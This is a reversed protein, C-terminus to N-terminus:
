PSARWEWAEHRWHQHHAHHSTSPHQYLGHHQHPPQKGQAHLFYYAPQHQATTITTQSHSSSAVSKSTANGGSNRASMRELQKHQQVMVSIKNFSCIPCPAEVADGKFERLLVHKTTFLPLPLAALRKEFEPVIEEDFVRKPFVHGCTFVKVHTELPDSKGLAQASHPEITVAPLALDNKLVNEKVLDLLKLMASRRELSPPARPEPVSGSTGGSLKTEEEGSDLFTACVHFLFQGSFPLRHCMRVWERDRDDFGSSRAVAAFVTSTTSSSSSPTAAAARLSGGGGSGGGLIGDVVESFFIKALLSAVFPYVKPDILFVELETKALGYEFWKVLLRALIAAKMEETITRESRRQVVLSNLLQFLEERMADQFESEDSVGSALSGTTSEVSADSSQRRRRLASFSVPPSSSLASTPSTPTSLVPRLAKHSQLRAEVAEVLEGHAEYVCAAATWNEYDVCRAVVIPPRYQQALEKMLQELAAQSYKGDDVGDFSVSRAHEGDGSSRRRGNSDRASARNLFLLVTLFLEVREEPLVRMMESAAVDASGVSQADGLKSEGAESETLVNRPDVCQAIQQCRERSISPLNRAVWDRQQLISPPYTLLVDVQTDIPFARLILRSEPRTLEPAFGASVLSRLAKLSVFPALGASIIKQLVLRVQKRCKGVLVAKDVQQHALCQDVIEETDYDSSTELFHLLWAEKEALRAQTDAGRPRLKLQVSVKDDDSSDLPSTVNARLQERLVLDLLKLAVQKREYADVYLTPAAFRPGPTAHQHQQDKATLIEQAFDIACQAGGISTLQDIAMSPLARSVQYLDRIWQVMRDDAVTKSTHVNECLTEAVVQCLSAMDIGLAYGISLANRLTISQACLTKFLALRSWQPRCEYVHHQTQLLYIVQAEGLRDSSGSFRRSAALASGSGGSKAAQGSGGALQLTRATSQVVREIKENGHLSLYHVIHANAVQDDDDPGSHSPLSIWTSVNQKSKATRGQLLLLDTTCYAIEVDEVMDEDDSTGDDSKGTKMEEPAGDPSNASPALSPVVYENRLSWQFNSYLSARRADPDYMALSSESSLLGNIAYLCIQPSNKKIRQPRFDMDELFHQPFTKVVYQLPARTAFASPGAFSQSTTFTPTGSPSVSSSSITTTTATAATATSDATSDDRATPTLLSKLSSQHKVPAKHQQFKKELVVRYYRVVRDDGLAKVLMTTRTEKRFNERFLDISVIAGANQLECRCEEANEEVNVVSILSESGGVLCYNKSNMSRWWRCCTVTGIGVAFELTSMQENDGAVQSHYRAGNLGGAENTARLYSAMQTNMASQHVSMLERNHPPDHAADLLQQRQRAILALVPILHLRNKRSSLAALWDGEPSFELAVLKERKGASQQKSNSYVPFKWLRPQEDEEVTRVLLYNAASSLAARKKREADSSAAASASSSGRTVPARSRRPEVTPLQGLAISPAAAPPAPPAPPPPPPAADEVVSLALLQKKELSHVAMAEIRLRPSQQDSDAASLSFVRRIRFLDGGRADPAPAAAAAAKASTM